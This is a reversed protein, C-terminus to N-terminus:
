CTTHINAATQSFFDKVATQILERVSEARTNQGVVLYKTVALLFFDQLSKNDRLNHFVM